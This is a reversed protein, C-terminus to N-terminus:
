SVHKASLRDLLECVTYDCLWDVGNSPIVSMVQSREGEKSFKLLAMDVENVAMVVTDFTVEEMDDPNMDGDPSLDIAVTWGEERADWVLPALGKCPWLRGNADRAATYNSPEYKIM